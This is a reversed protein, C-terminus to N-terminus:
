SKEDEFPDVFKATSGSRQFKEAEADDMTSTYEDEANGAQIESWRELANEVQLKTDKSAKIDGNAIKVLLEFLESSFRSFFEESRGDRLLNLLGLMESLREEVTAPPPFERELIRIIEETMSRHNGRAYASVRGALAEPLGLPADFSRELRSVIEANLSRNNAGAAQDIQDKLGSPLRLKFQPDTQKPTAM